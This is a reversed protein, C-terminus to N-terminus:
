PPPDLVFTALADRGAKINNLIPVIQKVTSDPITILGAEIGISRTTKLDEVAEVAVRVAVWANYSLEPAIIGRYQQWGQVTLPSADASWWHRKEVCTNAAAQARSLDTDILRSGRKVEIARNRNERQTDTREHRSAILYNSGAVIIAGVIVGVFGIIARSM